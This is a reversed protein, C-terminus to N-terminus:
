GIGDLAVRPPSFLFCFHTFFLSCDLPEIGAFAKAEDLALASFIDEHMEGRNLRIAVLRQVVALRDLKFDDAAGLAQLGGVNLRQLGCRASFVPSVSRRKARKRKLPVQSSPTRSSGPTLILFSYLLM